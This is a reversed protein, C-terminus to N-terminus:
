RNAYILGVFRKNGWPVQKKLPECAVVVNGNIAIKRCGRVGPYGRGAEDALKLLKYSKRRM